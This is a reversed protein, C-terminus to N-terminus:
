RKQRKIKTTSRTTQINTENNLLLYQKDVWDGISTIDRPIHLPNYDNDVAYLYEPKMQMPSYIFDDYKMFAFSPFAKVYNIIDPNFSTNCIPTYENGNRAITIHIIKINSYQSLKENKFFDWYKGLFTHCASCGDSTILVFAFQSM